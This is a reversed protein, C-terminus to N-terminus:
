PTADVSNKVPIVETIEGLADFRVLLYRYTAGIVAPQTDKLVMFFITGNDSFNVPATLYVFPDHIATIVSGGPSNTVVSAFREMLPSVQVLDGSVKPFLPNPVQYRYLAIPLLPDGLRNTFVYASPNVQGTLVVRRGQQRDDIV